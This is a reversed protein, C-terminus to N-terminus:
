AHEDFGHGGPNRDDGGPERVRDLQEGASRPQEYGMLVRRCQGGGYAPDEGLGAQGGAEGGAGARGVSNHGATAARYSASACLSRAARCGVAATAHGRGRGAERVQAPQGVVGAQEFVGPAGDGAALVAVAGVVDGTPQTTM